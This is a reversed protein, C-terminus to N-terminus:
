TCQSEFQYGQSSLHGLAVDLALVTQSRNDGGDHLLVVAGNYAHDVIHQAITLASQPRWDEPDVTWVALTMGLEAAWQFTSDDTAKYPPRLCNTAKSGLLVQTRGVTDDFQERTLGALREHGWTHNGITHGQDVIRQLTGPFREANEGTVFFTARAGYRALIDLVQLTYVPHPGDDFTFYMVPAPGDRIPDSQPLDFEIPPVTPTAEPASELGLLLDDELQETGSTPPERLPQSDIVSVVPEPGSFDVELTQRRSVVTFPEDPGRDLLVVQIVGDRVGISEMVIRDGIWVPQQASGGQGEDIVPVLLHFNGTGASTMIIHAIADMHGDDNIDTHVVRNQLIYRDESAGGYSVAAQGEELRITEGDVEFTLNVLDKWEM